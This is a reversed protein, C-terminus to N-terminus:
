PAAPATKPVTVAPTATAGAITAQLAASPTQEAAQAAVASMAGVGQACTAGALYTTQGLWEQKPEARSATSLTGFFDRLLELFGEDDFVLTSTYERIRILKDIIMDM